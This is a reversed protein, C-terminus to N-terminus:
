PKKNNPNKEPFDSAKYHYRDYIVSEKLNGDAPIAYIPVKVDLIISRKNTPAFYFTKMTFNLTTTIQRRNEFAGDYNDSVFLGGFSVPMDFVIGDMANVTIVIDPTFAPIIQELVQYMENQTKTIIDVEFNLTYPTPVYIRNATNNVTDIPTLRMRENRPIKRSSDYNLDTLTYSIRPLIIAPQRDQNEDDELRQAWKEKNAYNVPISIMSETGSSGDKKVQIDSFLDGFALIYKRTLDHYFYNNFIAM